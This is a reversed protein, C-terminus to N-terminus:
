KIQNMDLVLKSKPAYSILVRQGEDCAKYQQNNVLYTEGDITLENRNPKPSYKDTIKGHVVDKVGGSCDANFDRWQNYILYVAILGFFTGGAMLKGMMEEADMFYLYYSVGVMGLCILLVYIFFLLMILRKKKLKKLDEEELAIQKTSAM